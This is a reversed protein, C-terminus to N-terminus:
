PQIVSWRLANMRWNGGGPAVGTGAGNGFCNADVAFPYATGQDFWIPFWSQFRHYVRDQNGGVAQYLLNHHGDVIDAGNLKINSQALVWGNQVGQVDAEFGVYGWGPRPPNYTWNFPFFESRQMTVQPYPTGDFFASQTITPESFGVPMLRRTGNIVGLTQNTDDYVVSGVPMLDTVGDRSAKSLDMLGPIPVVGGASTTYVRRDTLSTPVSASPGVTIQALPLFVGGAVAYAKAVPTGASPDGDLMRVRWLDPSGPVVELGVVDIRSQTAHAPTVILDTVSAVSVIYAGESTAAPVAAVGPQIRVFMAGPLSVGLPNGRSPRVGGRATLGAAGGTTAFLNGRRLDVGTLTSGDEWYGSPLDAFANAM